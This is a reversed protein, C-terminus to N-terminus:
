KLTVKTALTSKNPNKQKRKINRITFEVRDGTKIKDILHYTNTFYDQGNDATIFGFGKHQIFRRVTGTEKDGDGKPPSPPIFKNGDIEEDDEPVYDSAINGDIDERDNIHYDESDFTNGDNEYMKFTKLYKM